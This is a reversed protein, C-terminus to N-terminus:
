LDNILLRNLFMLMPLAKNFSDSNHSDGGSQTQLKLKLRRRRAFRTLCLESTFYLSEVFGM